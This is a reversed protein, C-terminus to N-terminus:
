AQYGTALVITGSAKGSIIDETKEKTSDVLINILTKTEEDLVLKEALNHNWPYNEINAVHVEVFRHKNLDFCKIHPHIPYVSFGTYDIDQIEDEDDESEAEKQLVNSLIDLPLVDQGRWFDLFITETEKETSTNASESYLDDIVAKTPSDDVTL